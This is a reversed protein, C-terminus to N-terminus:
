KKGFWKYCYLRWLHQIYQLNVLMTLKSEGEARDHFVIPVEKFSAVHCKVFVELMIKYGIPSFEKGKILEKRFMFFGSMPDKVTTLGRALLAAVKSTIRRSIPWDYAGGGPVLRSGIVMQYGGNVLRDHMEMIKDPPHSLDADMVCLIEGNALSFGALVATALGKESVRRLVKIPYDQALTLALDATGDPSNDDVVIIEYPVKVSEDILEVLRTLNQFECYTPVIISIM